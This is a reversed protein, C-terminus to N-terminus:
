QWGRWIEIVLITGLLFVLLKILEILMPSKMQWQVKMMQFENLYKASQLRPKVWREFETIEFLKIPVLIDNVGDNLAILSHSYFVHKFETLIVHKGSSKLLLSAEQVGLAVDSIQKFMRRIFYSVGLIIIAIVLFIFSNKLTFFSVACLVVGGIAVIPLVWKFYTRAYLFQKSEPLWYAQGDETPMDLSTNNRVSNNVDEDIATVESKIAFYALVMFGILGFGVVAWALRQNKNAQQKARLLHESINTSTFDSLVSLSKADLALFKMNRVDAVILKGGVHVITVPDAGRGLDATHLLEGDKNFRGLKGNMMGNDMSLVYWYDAVKELDSPFDRGPMAVVFGGLKEGFTETSVDVALLEHHNTNVQWLVSDVVVLDNPFRLGQNFEALIDGTENLKYVRHRSTDALYVNDDKDITLRFVRDFVPLVLSFDSCMLTQIVCRYFGEGGVKERSDNELRAVTNLKNKLTPQYSSSYLLIDGNSFFAFDGMIGQLGFDDASYHLLDAGEPTVEYFDGGLNVAVNGAPNIRVFGPSDVQLVKTNFHMWASNVAVFFVIVVLATKTDVERNM